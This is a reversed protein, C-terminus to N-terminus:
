RMHIPPWRSPTALVHLNFMSFGKRLWPIGLTDGQEAESEAKGAPLRSEVTARSCRARGRANSPVPGHKSDKSAGSQFSLRALLLEHKCRTVNMYPVCYLCLFQIRGPKSRQGEMAGGERVECGRQRGWRTLTVAMASLAANLASADSTRGRQCAVDLSCTSRM